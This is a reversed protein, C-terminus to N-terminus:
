QMDMRCPRIPLIRAQWLMLDGRLVCQFQLTDGVDATRSRFPSPESMMTQASLKPSPLPKWVLTRKCQALGMTEISLILKTLKM